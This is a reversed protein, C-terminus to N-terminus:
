AKKVWAACWGKANVLKNGVAACPAWEENGKAAFLGCNACNRGPAFTPFKAKDVQSADHKYGLAVAAADTEQLRAPQQASASRAGAVALAAAPLTALVFRRRTTM